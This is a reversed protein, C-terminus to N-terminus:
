CPSGSRSAADCARLMAAGRKLINPLSSPTDPDAFEPPQHGHVRERRGLDRLALPPLRLGDRVPSLESGMPEQIVLDTGSGTSHLGSSSPRRLPTRFVMYRNGELRWEVEHERPARVVSGLIRTELVFGVCPLDDFARRSADHELIELLRVRTPVPAAGDDRQTRRAPPVHIADPVSDVDDRVIEERLERVAARSEVQRPLPLRPHGSQLLFRLRFALGGRRMRPFQEGRRELPVVIPGPAVSHVLM